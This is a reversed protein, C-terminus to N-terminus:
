TGLRQLYLAFLRSFENKDNEINLAQMIMRAIRTPRGSTDYLSIRPDNRNEDNILNETHRLKVYENNTFITEMVLQVDGADANRGEFGRETSVLQRRLLTLKSFDLSLFFM